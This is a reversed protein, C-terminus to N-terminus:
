LSPDPRLLHLLWSEFGIVSAILSAKLTTVILEPVPDDLLPVIDGGPARLHHDRDRRPPPVRAPLM